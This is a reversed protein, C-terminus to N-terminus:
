DERLFQDIASEEKFAVARQKAPTDSHNGGARRGEADTVDDKVVPGGDNQGQKAAPEKRPSILSGRGQEQHRDFVRQITTGHEGNSVSLKEKFACQAQESLSGFSILLAPLTMASGARAMEIFFM